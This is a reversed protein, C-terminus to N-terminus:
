VRGSTYRISTHFTPDSVLCVPSLHCFFLIFLLHSPTILVHPIIEPSRAWVALNYCKRLPSQILSSSSDLFLIPLSIFLSRRLGPSLPVLLSQCFHRVALYSLTPYLGSDEWIVDHLLGVEPHFVCVLCSVVFFCFHVNFILATVSSLM